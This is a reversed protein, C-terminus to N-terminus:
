GSVYLEGGARLTLELRYVRVYGTGAARLRFGYNATKRPTFRIPLLRAKGTNNTHSYVKQSTSENFKEDDCLLYVDIRAGAAAEALMQIKRIHKIDISKGTYIDTEFAWNHSYDGSDLRYIYGDGGLAYIGNRNHAFSLVEFDISEEAWLGALTDFVFLNHEAKDTECYLYYKRGDTGAVASKFEDVNLNFGLIRPDGGTYVKVGARDVFILNGDVDCVSRNDITGEAYIDQIRFPNKNNYLEHMFDRKFCIVHNQFTTIGTFVGDGKTNSQAPSCWANDPSSEEGAVDLNWNTYDNFGSAYIRGADVGFVRSNHVTAYRLDPIRILGTELAAPTFDGTIHFDTSKKDPFILLKKTYGSGVPDTPDDYVNFKVICRPLNRLLWNGSLDDGPEYFFPKDIYFSDEDIKTIGFIGNFRTTGALTVSDGTYLGHNDAHVRSTGPVHSGYDSIEYFTGNAKRLTGTYKNEGRIYDTKVYDGDKYVVLLFDEFAAMSIPTFYRDENIRERKQSPVIHPTEDTSINSEYSLVGTDMTVRKNLGLFGTRVLKFSSYGKPLPTQLYKLKGDNKKKAM